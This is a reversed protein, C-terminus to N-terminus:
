RARHPLQGEAELPVAGLDDEVGARSGYKQPRARGMDWPGAPDPLSGPTPRQSKRASNAKRSAIARAPSAKASNREPVPAPRRARGPVGDDEGAGGLTLRDRPPPAPWAGPAPARGGRQRSSGRGSGGGGPRRRRGAGRGRREGGGGGGGGRGPRCRPPWWAPGPPGRRATAPPARRAARGASGSRPSLWRRGAVGARPFIKAGRGTSRGGPGRSPWRRSARDAPWRGGRPM